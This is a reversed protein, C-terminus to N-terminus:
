CGDVGGVRASTNSINTESSKAGCDHPCTEFGERSRRTRSAIMQRQDSTDLIKHRNKNCRHKTNVDTENLM